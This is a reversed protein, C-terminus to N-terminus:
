EEDTEDSERTMDRKRYKSLLLAGVSILLVTGVFILAGASHDEDQEDAASIPLEEERSETDSVSQQVTEQSATEESLDQESYAGNYDLQVTKQYDSAGERISFLFWQKDVTYNEPVDTIDAQYLNTLLSDFIVKGNEDSVMEEGDVSVRVGQVPKKNKDVFTFVAKGYVVTDAVRAYSTNFAYDVAKYVIKLSSIRGVDASNYFSLRGLQSRLETIDYVFTVSGNTNDRIDDLQYSRDSIYGAKILDDIPDAYDYHDNQSHYVATYLQFGQLATEDSATLELLIKGDKEYIKDSVNKPATNDVTFSFSKTKEETLTGQADMSKAGVTYIYQGEPLSAFFNRLDDSKELLQAYPKSKESYFSDLNGYNQSFLTKGDKGSVTVTFECADRLLYLCPLIYSNGLSFDDKFNRLTDKGVAIHEIYAKDTYRNYGLVLEDGGENDTVAILSNNLKTISESSDYITHDFIDNQSWDGCFGMMPLHITTGDAERFFLYGDLYFGNEFFEGYALVVSPDLTISVTVTQESHAAVTVTNANKDDVSIKVSAGQHLLYPSLTNIYGGNDDSAFTDTFLTAAATYKKQKDSLNHIVADFTFEGSPNDSLDAKAKGTDGVTVYARCSLARELNIMGAGQVRPTDYLTDDWVALGSEETAEDPEDNESNDDSLEAEDPEADYPIVDASTMLLAKVTENQQAPTLSSFNETTELYQRALLFAGAACPASMSTGSMMGYEDGDLGSLINEGPVSIDPKLKLDATVGYASSKSIVPVSSWERVYSDTDLSIMGESANEFLDTYEPPLCLIPISPQETEEDTLSLSPITMETLFIVGAAGKLLATHYHERFTTEDGSFVAIKGYLAADNDQDQETEEEQAPFYVYQTDETVAESFLSYEGSHDDSLLTERYEAPEGNVFVRRIIEATNRVSAATFAADTLGLDSVAGYDTYLTSLYNRSDPEAGNIFDNGASVVVQTGADSLRSVVDNYIEYGYLNRACGFSCNIVDAGLKVADDMAAFVVKPSSIKGEQSQSDTSIKMLALQADYAVGRYANEDTKGNNGAAIGAVHTGHSDGAFYTENDHDAYDYAFIIKGSKYVDKFTYASAVNFRAQQFLGDLESETYKPDVPLSSFISHSCDFEDDLVAILTGSGTYGSKYATDMNMMSQYSRSLLRINAKIPDNQSSTESTDVDEDPNKLTNDATTNESAQGNNDSNDDNNDDDDNVSQLERCLTVSSVGKISKLTDYSNQPAKVSFGNFIATYTFSDSFDAKPVLKQISAKIVAQEKKITDSCQKGESSAILETIHHYKGNSKRFVDLLSNSASAVIFTVTKEDDALNQNDSGTDDKDKEVIAASARNIKEPLTDNRVYRSNIIPLVLVSVTLVSALVASFVGKKM